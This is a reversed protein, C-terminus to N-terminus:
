LGGPRVECGLFGRRGGEARGRKISTVRGDLQRRTAGYRRPGRAGDREQLQSSEVVPATTSSTDMKKTKYAAESLACTGDDLKNEAVLGLSVLRSPSVTSPPRAAPTAARGDRRRPVLTRPRDRRGARLTNRVHHRRHREGTTRQKEHHM